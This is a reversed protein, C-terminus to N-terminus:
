YYYKIMKQFLFLTLQFQNVDNISMKYFNLVFNVNFTINKEIGGM